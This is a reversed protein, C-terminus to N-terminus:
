GGQGFELSSSAGIWLMRVFCNFRFFIKFLKGPSWAIVLLFYAIFVVKAAFRYNKMSEQMNKQISIVVVVLILPVGGV